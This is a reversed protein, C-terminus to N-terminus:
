DNTYFLFPKFASVLYKSEGVDRITMVYKARYSVSNEGGSAKNDVWNVEVDVKYENPDDTDYVTKTIANEPTGDLKVAGGFGSYLEPNDKDIIYQIIAEHSDVSAEAYANVFGHITPLLSPMIENNVAGNGLPAPNPVDMQNSIEYTPILSPSDQTIALTDTDEDYYVNIAFSVWRGASVAGDATSGDTNSVFASVKYLAANNTTMIVEFTTAPILVSQKTENGRSMRLQEFGMHTASVDGGYYHSLSDMLEPKTADISLFTNTFSEAFAQGRERPFGTQGAGQRAFAKIQESTYIHSPFFTNKLGLGFLAVIVFMVISRLIRTKSLVNKREDFESAKIKRKSRKGGIPKIKKRKKDIYKDDDVEEEFEPHYDDIEDYTEEEYYSPMPEVEEYEEYDNIYDGDDYVEEIDVEEFDSEFEDELPPMDELSPLEFKESDKKEEDIGDLKPLKM